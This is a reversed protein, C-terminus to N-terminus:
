PVQNHKKILKFLFIVTEFYNIMKGRTIPLPYPVLSPEIARWLYWVGGGDLGWWGGGKHAMEGVRDRTADV